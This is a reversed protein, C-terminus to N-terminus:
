EDEIGGLFENLVQMIDHIHKCQYVKNKINNAGPIGKLYWALHSRIELIVLKEPKTDKLYNLHKICMEIKEKVKPLEYEKSDLCLLSNKILWPNGLLGRGIMVADCGTQNIM